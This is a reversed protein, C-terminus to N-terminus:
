SLCSEPPCNFVHALEHHAPASPSPGQPSLSAPFPLASYKQVLPCRVTLQWLCLCWRTSFGWQEYIAQIEDDVISRRAELTAAALPNTRLASDRCWAMWPSTAAFVNAEAVVADM